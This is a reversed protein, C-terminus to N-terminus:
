YFYKMPRREPSIVGFLTDVDRGPLAIDDDVVFEAIILLLDVGTRLARGILM